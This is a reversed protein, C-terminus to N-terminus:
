GWHDGIWLAPRTKKYIRKWGQGKGLPWHGLVAEDPDPKGHFVVIKADAPLEPAVFWRMPWKPLLEEKYSRCWSKPWFVQEGKPELYRSIYRQEIRHRMFTGMMDKKFNSLIEPYKGVPFRFVSTNGTKKGLETWNHIVCFKGPKYQFFEDLTGTIVVDLDLFLADGELNFLPRDWVLLKLWPTSKMHDPLDKNLEPLPFSEVGEILNSSDDTICIFRYDTGITGSMHRKVMSFLRNVYEPGYRKGWKMCIINKM